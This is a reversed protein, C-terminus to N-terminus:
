PRAQDARPGRDGRALPPRAPGDTGAVGVDGVTAAPGRDGAAHAATFGGLGALLLAAAAIGAAIRPRLRPGDAATATAHRVPSETAHDSFGYHEMSWYHPEPARPTEGSM